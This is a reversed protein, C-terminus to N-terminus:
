FNIQTNLTASQWDSHTSQMSSSLQVSGSDAPKLIPIEFNNIATPTQDGLQFGIALDSLVNKPISFFYPEIRLTTGAYKLDFSDTYGNNYDVFGDRKEYVVLDPTIPTIDATTASDAINGGAHLTVALSETNNLINHTFVMSNKNVGSFNSLSAGNRSWTFTTTKPTFTSSIAVARIGGENSPLAKGKYFPPVYSDTSEWLIDVRSDTGADQAYSIFPSLILLFFVLISVKKM